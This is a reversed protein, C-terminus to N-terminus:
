FSTSVHLAVQRLDRTERRTEKEEHLRRFIALYKDGQDRIICAMAKYADDLIEDTIQRHGNM